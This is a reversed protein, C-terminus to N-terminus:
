STDVKKGNKREFSFPEMNEAEFVPSSNPDTKLYLVEDAILAFMVNNLYVDGGGFMSRVQVDGMPEFLEVVFEKFQKSVSM